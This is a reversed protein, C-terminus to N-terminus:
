NGCPRRAVEHTRSEARYVDAGLKGDDAMMWVYSSWSTRDSGRLIFCNRFTTCPAQLDNVVVHALGVVRRGEHISVVCEANVVRFGVVVRANGSLMIKVESIAVHCEEHHVRPSMTAVGKSAFSDSSRHQAFSLQTGQVLPKPLHRVENDVDRGMNLV